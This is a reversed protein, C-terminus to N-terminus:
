KPGAQSIRGADCPKSVGTVLDAASLVTVVRNVLHTKHPSGCGMSHPLASDLFELPSAGGIGFIWVRTPGNSENRCNTPPQV